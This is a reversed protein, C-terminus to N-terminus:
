TEKNKEDARNNGFKHDIYGHKIKGALNSCLTLQWKLQNKMAPLLLFLFHLFYHPMFHHFYRCQNTHPPTRKVSIKHSVSKWKVSQRDSRSSHFGCMWSENM